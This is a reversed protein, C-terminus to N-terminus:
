LRCDACDIHECLESDVKWRLAWGKFQKIVDILEMGSDTLDYEVKIPVRSADVSKTILGAGELEKLRESLM